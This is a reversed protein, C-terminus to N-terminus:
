PRGKAINHGILAAHLATGRNEYDACQASGFRERLTERTRLAVTRRRIDQQIDELKHNIGRETKPM